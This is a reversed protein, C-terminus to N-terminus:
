MSLGPSASLRHTGSRTLTGCATSRALALLLRYSSDVVPPQAGRNFLQLDGRLLSLRERTRKAIIFCVHFYNIKHPNSVYLQYKQIYNSAYNQLTTANKNTLDRSDALTM